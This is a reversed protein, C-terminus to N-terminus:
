LYRSQKKQKLFNVLDKVKQADKRSCVLLADETDIIIMNKVGIGTILKEPNYTNLISNETELLEMNGKLLINGNEDPPFFEFLSEWSGVDNWGLDSTKIMAINKAKEMIGYDITQPHISAWIKDRIPKEKSGHASCFQIIKNYLDPMWKQFESLISQTKWVFM